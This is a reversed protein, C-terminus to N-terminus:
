VLQIAVLLQTLQRSRQADRKLDLDIVQLTIVVGSTFM